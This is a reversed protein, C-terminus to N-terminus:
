PHAPPPAARVGRDEGEKQSSVKYLQLAAVPQNGTQSLTTADFLLLRDYPVAEPTLGDGFAKRLFIYRSSFVLVNWDRKCLYYLPNEHKLVLLREPRRLDCALFAFQGELLQISPQIAGLYQRGSDGPLASDLIRFIIESDVHAKRPYHYRAFLEDDNNIHGNHVGIVAGALLPHNNAPFAPDGKTAKRTHGLVLVANEDISKIM